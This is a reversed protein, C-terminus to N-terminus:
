FDCPRHSHQTSMSCIWAAVGQPGSQHLLESPFVCSKSVQKAPQRTKFFFENPFCSQQLLDGEANSNVPLPAPVYRFFARKRRIRYFTPTMLGAQQSHRSVRTEYEVEKTAYIRGREFQTYFIPSSVTFWIIIRSSDRSAKEFVEKRCHHHFSAAAKEFLVM